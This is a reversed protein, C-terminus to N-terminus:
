LNQEKLQESTMGFRRERSQFWLIAKILDKGRFDPWLKKTIYIEAYAIQWLLFDSVRMEGSTRILLDVDPLTFFSSLFKRDIQEQKIKNEEVMKAIKRVVGVIEDRGSYSLALCLVMDKCDATFEITNQIEAIVDQTFDEINGIVGFRIGNEKMRKREKVLYEKLLQMLAEVEEKPRKWNDKSFSYLTLYKIGLERSTQVVEDVSKAGMRHGEIRPLNRKKAWRGNGDMIIAVHNPLVKIQHKQKYSM